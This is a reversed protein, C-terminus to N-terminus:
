DSEHGVGTNGLIDALRRRARSLRMDIAASSINLALSMRNSSWDLAYRLVLVERDETRLRNLGERVRSQLEVHELISSPERDIDPLHDLSEVSRAAVKQRRAVDRLWNRGVQLLWARKDRITTGNQEHLRTFSEQVADHARERDCCQVYFLAWLERAQSRYLSEVEASWASSQRTAM